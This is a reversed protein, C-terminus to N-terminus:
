ELTELGISGPPCIYECEGGLYQPIWKLPFLGTKVLEKGNKLFNVKKKTRDDLMPKVVHWVANVIFPCNVCM